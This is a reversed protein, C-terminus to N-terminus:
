KHTRTRAAPRADIDFGAESVAQEINMKRCLNEHFTITLQRAQIDSSIEVLENPFRTTLAHQIVQAKDPTDLDPIASTETIVSPRHCATLFLPLLSIALLKKHM